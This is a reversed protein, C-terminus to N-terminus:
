SQGCCDRVRELTEVIAEMAAIEHDATAQMMRGTSVWKRYVNRRMALERRAAAVQEDITM